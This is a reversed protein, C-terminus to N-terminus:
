AYDILIHDAQLLDKWELPQLEAMGTKSQWNVYILLMKM